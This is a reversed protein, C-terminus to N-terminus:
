AQRWHYCVYRQKKCIGADQVANEAGGVTNRIDNVVTKGDNAALVCSFSFLLGIFIFSITLIIKKM